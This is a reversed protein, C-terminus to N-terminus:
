ALIICDMEAISENLLIGHLLSHMLHMTNMHQGTGSLQAAIYQM